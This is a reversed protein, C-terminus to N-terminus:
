EDDNEQDKVWLWLAGLGGLLLIVGFETLTLSNAAELAMM